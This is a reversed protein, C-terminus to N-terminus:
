REIQQCGLRTLAIAVGLEKQEAIPSVEDSTSMRIRLRVKVSQSEAAKVVKKTKRPATYASIKRQKSKAVRAEKAATKARKKALEDRVHQRRKQLLDGHTLYQAPAGASLTVNKPKSLASQVNGSVNTNATSYSNREKAMLINNITEHNNLCVSANQLARSVRACGSKRAADVISALMEFTERDSKRKQVSRISAAPSGTAAQEMQTTAALAVEDKNRKFRETFRYNMPWLGTIDWSRRIETTGIAELGATAFMLKSQITRTDTNGSSALCFKDRVRRVTDQFAKNVDQDCPQLFHSTNAPSQVVCKHAKAFDLWDIGNRSSHGDLLLVYHREQQVFQRFFNDLHAMFIPIIEMTMSGNDVMVVCADSSFWGERTFRKLNGDEFKYKEESLQLYWNSMNRKGEIIFFPPCKKGSASVAFVVTVNRGNGTGATTKAFGGHHTSGDSVVRERKGFEGDVHTEDMNWVLDPDDFITPFEQSVSRLADEYTKVHFYDESKLKVASKNEVLRFILEPHRARFSRIADGSPVGNKYTKARGDSAIRGM